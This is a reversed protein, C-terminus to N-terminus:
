QKKRKWFPMFEQRFRALEQNLRTVEENREAVAKEREHVMSIQKKITEDREQVMAIHQRITEDREQVMSLYKQLDRDREQVMAIHRRITEDREQITRDREQVMAIHQELLKEKDQLACEIMRIEREYDEVVRSLDEAKYFCVAYPAIYKPRYTINDYFGQKAFLRAWYERQQVNVHTHEKFDCPSSAFIIQDTTKCLNAIAIQGESAYLHELVEITVVVDYQHPLIPPLPETISGVCCFPKVDERVMSIAYKSIDIGYAEVGRDRLAAVLYGMACGADLVTRPNLEQVIHDAIEGFFQIWQESDEYPIPGCYFHYYDKNYIESM